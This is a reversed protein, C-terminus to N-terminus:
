LSLRHLFVAAADVKGLLHGETGGLQDVLVQVNELGLYALVKIRQAVVTPKSASIESTALTLSYRHGVPPAMM